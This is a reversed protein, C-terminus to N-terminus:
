FNPQLEGHMPLYTTDLIGQAPWNLLTIYNLKLSGSFTDKGIGHSPTRDLERPHSKLIKSEGLIGGGQPSFVSLQILQPISM